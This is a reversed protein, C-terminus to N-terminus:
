FPSASQSCPVHEQPLGPCPTCGGCSPSATPRLHAPRGEADRPSPSAAARGPAALLGPRTVGSVTFCARSSPLLPVPPGPLRPGPAWSARAICSGGLAGGGGGAQPAGVPHPSLPVLGKAGMQIRDGVRAPLHLAGQLFGLGAPRWERGPSLCSRGASAPTLERPLPDLRLGGAGEMVALGAAIVRAADLCLPRNRPPPGGGGWRTHM